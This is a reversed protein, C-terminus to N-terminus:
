CSSSCKPSSISLAWDKGFKGHWHLCALLVHAVDQGPISTVSFEEFYANKKLLVSLNPLIPGESSKCAMVGVKIIGCPIDSWLYLIGLWRRVRGPLTGNQKAAKFWIEKPLLETFMLYCLVFLTLSFSNCLKDRNEKWGRVCGRKLGKWVCVYM